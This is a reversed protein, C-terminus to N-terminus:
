QSWAKEWGVQGLEPSLRICQLSVLESACGWGPNNASNMYGDYTPYQPRQADEQAESLGVCLLISLLLLMRM